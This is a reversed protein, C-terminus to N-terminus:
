PHPRGNGVERRKDLELTRLSMSGLFLEQGDRLIARQHLRMGPMKDHKLGEGKKSVKGIIRINTLGCAVSARKISESHCPRFLAAAISGTLVGLRVDNLHALDNFSLSGIFLSMTFGIGALLAIGLMHLWGAGEPLKALGSRVLLFVMGLVGTLKGVM